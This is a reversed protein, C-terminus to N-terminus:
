ISLLADGDLIAPDLDFSLKWLSVPEPWCDPHHGHVIRITFPGVRTFNVDHFRSAVVVGVFHAAVVHSATGEVPPRSLSQVCPVLSVILPLCEMCRVCLTLERLSRRLGDQQNRCPRPRKTEYTAAM